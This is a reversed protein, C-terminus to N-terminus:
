EELREVLKEVINNGIAESANEAGNYMFQQNGCHHVTNSGDDPFYLYQYSKKSKVTIALNGKEEQFPDTSKAEARKGSWSRGSEPLIKQISEKILEGGQTWLYENVIEEAISGETFQMVKDIIKEMSSSDMKFYSM